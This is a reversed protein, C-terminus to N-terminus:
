VRARRPVAECKQACTKKKKKVRTVPGVLLDKLRLNLYYHLLLHVQAREVMQYRAERKREMRLWEREADDTPPEGTANVNWCTLSAIERIALPSLAVVGDMYKKKKNNVRTVPGLLDKLRLNRGQVWTSQM